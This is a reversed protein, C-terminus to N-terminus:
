SSVQEKTGATRRGHKTAGAQSLLDRVLAGLCAARWIHEWRASPRQALVTVAMQRLKTQVDCDAQHRRAAQSVLHTGATVLIGVAEDAKDPPPMTRSWWWAHTQDCAALVHQGTPQVGPVARRDLERVLDGLDPPAAVPFPPAPHVVPGQGRSALLVQQDALLRLASAAAANSSVLSRALPRVRPLTSGPPYVGSQILFRLWAAIQQPRDKPMGNGVARVQKGPSITVLGERQLDQLALDVRGVPAGAERAIRNAGLKSGPPYMGSVLAHRVQDAVDSVDPGPREAEMLAHLLRRAAGLFMVFDPRPLCNSSPRRVANIMGRWHAQQSPSRTAEDLRQEALWLWPEVANWIAERDRDIGAATQGTFRSAKLTLSTSLLQRYRPTRESHEVRPASRTSASTTM